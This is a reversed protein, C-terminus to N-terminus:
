TAATGRFSEMTGALLENAEQAFDLRNGEAAIQQFSLLAFSGSIKLVEIVEADTYAPEILEKGFRRSAQQFGTHTYSNMASWASKKLKGIVGSQFDELTEISSVLDGFSPKLKDNQFQSLQTESACNKLWVGRVYSEFILRVLAFASGNVKSKLLCCIALHHEIAQDLCGVSLLVRKGKKIELGDLRPTMWNYLEFGKAILIEKHTM